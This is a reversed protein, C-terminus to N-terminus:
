LFKGEVVNVRMIVKLEYIGTSYSPICVMYSLVIYPIYGVAFTRLPRIKKPVVKLKSNKKLLGKRESLQFRGMM